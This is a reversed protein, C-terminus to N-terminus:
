LIANPLTTHQLVLESPFLHRLFPVSLVSIRTTISPKLNCYQMGIFCHM